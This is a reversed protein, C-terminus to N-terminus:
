AMESRVEPRPFVTTENFRCNICNTGTFDIFLLKKEARAQQWAKEYDRTWDLHAAAAGTNGNSSPIPSPDATASDQPLWSILVNGLAGLPAKRWLLPTMYVALGLCVTAMILRPVGIHEVPSDHPLRFVGFLYFGCAIALAIWTCLVTEYNFLQPDGPFFGADMISFFKLALALELFGMVVKVANLWGGSKPLSRLLRPFLALVFFPSAFAVAYALSSTFVQTRTMKLEKVATLLPGLFPGTCTFSNVTFTLAMFFAGVYGTGEHASTYRTLFGPLELEFMGFLSLAFVVLLLGMALNLWVNNALTTIVNGLVLVAVTLVVIITGSYILALVLPSNHEKEGQKLFFSVTVPIMPFVCPTLLMIFGAGM